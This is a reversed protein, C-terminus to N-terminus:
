SSEISRKMPFSFWRRRAPEALKLGAPTVARQLRAFLFDVSITLVAVVIAAGLQGVFGYTQPTIIPEGLTQVNALPAITATAVVNVSSTRLGGFISPLALPLEIKRVIDLESMGQGRAADVLDRDV